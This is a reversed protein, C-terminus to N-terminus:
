KRSSSAQARMARVTEILHEWPSESSVIEKTAVPARSVPTSAILSTSVAAAASRGLAGHPTVVSGADNPGTARGALTAQRHRLKAVAKAWAGAVLEHDVKLETVPPTHHTAEDVSADAIPTGERSFALREEVDGCGPCTWSHQEYGAVSLSTEKVVRVLRMVAGCALCRM